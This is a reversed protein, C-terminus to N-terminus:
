ADCGANVKRMEGHSNPEGDVQDALSRFMCNGDGAIVKIRCGLAHLQAAFAREESSEYNRERAQQRKLEKRTLREDRKAKAAAEKEAHKIKARVKGGKAMHTIAEVSEGIEAAL